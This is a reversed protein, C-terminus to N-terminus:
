KQFIAANEDFFAIQGKRYDDQIITTNGGRLQMAVKEAPTYQSWHPRQIGKGDNPNLSDAFSIWYDMIIASVNRAAEDAEGYTPLAQPLNNPGTPPVQGFVFQIEAGHFVGM